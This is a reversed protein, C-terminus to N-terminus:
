ISQLEPPEYRAIVSLMLFLLQSQREGLDRLFHAVVGLDRQQRRVIVAPPHERASALWPCDSPCQIQVLRKTGCCVACIQKGLAPCGRRAKRTGCLPCMVAHM